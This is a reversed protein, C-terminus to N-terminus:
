PQALLVELTRALAEGRSIDGRLDNRYASAPPIAMDASLGLRLLIEFEGRTMFFDLSTESPALSFHGPFARRLMDLAHHRKMPFDTGFIKKGLGPM